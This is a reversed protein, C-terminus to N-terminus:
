EQQAKRRRREMPDQLLPRYIELRDGDKLEYDDGVLQGYVGIPLDAAGTAADTENLTILGLELAKKLAARAGVPFGEPLSVVQQREPLAYVLQIDVQRNVGAHRIAKGQSSAV